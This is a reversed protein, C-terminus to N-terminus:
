KNGNYELRELAVPLEAMDDIVVDAISERTALHNAGIFKIAKM